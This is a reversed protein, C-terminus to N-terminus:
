AFREEMPVNQEIESMTELGKKDLDALCIYKMIKERDYHSNKDITTQRLRFDVIGCYMRFSELLLSQRLGKDIRLPVCHNVTM